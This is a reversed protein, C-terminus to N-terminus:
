NGIKFDKVKGKYKLKVSSSMGRILTIESVTQRSKMLHDVGNIAILYVTNTNGAGSVKGKYTVSPWVLSPRKNKLKSVKVKKKPTYLTGLFPDRKIQGLAFSDRKKIEVPAVNIERTNNTIPDEDSFAGVVQYIIAGWIFAVIPLLIYLGKKGKLM